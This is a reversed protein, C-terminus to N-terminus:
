SASASRANKQVGGTQGYLNCGEEGSGFVQYRAVAPNGDNEDTMLEFACRGIRRGIGCRGERKM